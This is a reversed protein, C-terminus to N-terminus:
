IFSLNAFVASFQISICIAHWLTSIICRLFVPLRYYITSDSARSIFWTLLKVLLFMLILFSFLDLYQSIKVFTLIFWCFIVNLLFWAVSIFFVLLLLWREQENFFTTYNYFFLLSENCDNQSICHWYKRQTGRSPPARQLCTRHMRLRGPGTLLLRM